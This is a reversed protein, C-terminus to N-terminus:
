NFFELCCLELFAFEDQTLYIICLLFISIFITIKFISFISNSTMYRIQDSALGCWRYLLIWVILIFPLLYLTYSGKLSETNIPFFIFALYLSLIFLNIEVFARIFVRSLPSFRYVFNVFQQLKNDIM